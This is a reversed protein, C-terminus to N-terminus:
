VGTTKNYTVCPYPCGGHQFCSSCCKDTANQSSKWTPIEVHADQMYTRAQEVVSPNAAAVNNSESIDVALDYLLVNDGHNTRIAKWEHGDQDFRLAQVWGGEYQQPLLGDVKAYDCFERYELVCVPNM